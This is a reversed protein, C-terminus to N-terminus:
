DGVVRLGFILSANEVLQASGSVNLRVTIPKRFFDRAQADSLGYTEVLTRRTLFGAICVNSDRTRENIVTGAPLPTEFRESSTMGTTLRGGFPAGTTPDILAPDDLLPSEVTLSPSYALRAIAPVATSNNYRVSLVPSFWYCLLTKSSKPPLKIAAIDTFNFVTAAPAPALAQCHSGPEPPSPCASALQLNGQTVGLWVVNRGFSDVDGVDEIIPAAAAPKSSAARTALARRPAVPALLDAGARDLVPTDDAPRAIAYLSVAVAGIALLALPLTLKM